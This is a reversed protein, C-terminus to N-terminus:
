TKSVMLKEPSMYPDQNMKKSAPSDPLKQPVDLVFGENFSKNRLQEEYILQEQIDKEISDESFVFSVQSVSDSDIQEVDDLISDSFSSFDARPSEYMNVRPSKVLSKTM